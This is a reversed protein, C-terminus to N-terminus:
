KSSLLLQLHAHYIVLFCVIFDHVLGHFCAKYDLIRLIKFILGYIQSFLFILISLVYMYKKSSVQTFFIFYYLFLNFYIFFLFKFLLFINICYIVNIYNYLYFFLIFLPLVPRSQHQQLTRSPELYQESMSILPLVVSSSFHGYVSNNRTRIKRYESWFYSGIKECLAVWFVKFCHRLYPCDLNKYETGFMNSKQQIKM